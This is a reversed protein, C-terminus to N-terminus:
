VVGLQVYHYRNNAWKIIDCVKRLWDDDFLIIKGENSQTLAVKIPKGHVNGLGRAQFIWCSSKGFVQNPSLKPIM